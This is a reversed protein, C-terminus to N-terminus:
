WLIAVALLIFAVGSSLARYLHSREWRGRLQRWDQAALRSEDPQFFTLATNSLMAENLWAKNVPATLTWYILHTATAAALAGAILWFDLSSRPTTALLTALAAVAAPEALGGYTFGPFYIRQVALYEDRDLRMKGPYELAHALALSVTVTVLVLSVFEFATHM